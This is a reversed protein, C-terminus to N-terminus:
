EYIGVSNDFDWRLNVYENALWDNVNDTTVLYVNAPIEVHDYRGDMLGTAIDIAVRVTEPIGSQINIGRFMGHGEATEKIANLAEEASNTGWVGYDSLDEVPSNMGIYYNNVGSANLNSTTLFLKIEPNTAYINEAAEMGAEMSNEDQEYELAIYVKDSYSEIQRLGESQETADFSSNNTLLAVPISGPEADPFHEEVFQACMWANCLGTAYNDSSMLGDWNETADVMIIVKSGAERATDVASSIAAGSVPHVMIVDTGMAAYNEILEIQTAPDFEGNAYSAEWGIDEFGAVLAESIAQFFEGTGMMVFGFSYGTADGGDDPADSPEASDSPAVSASPEANDKSGCGTLVALLMTALLLISLVKKM